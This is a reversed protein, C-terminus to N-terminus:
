VHARGIERIDSLFSGFSVAHILVFLLTHGYCLEHTLMSCCFATTILASHVQTWHVLSSVDPAPM